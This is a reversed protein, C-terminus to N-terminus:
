RQKEIIPLISGVDFIRRDTLIIPEIKKSNLFDIIKNYDPLHDITGTFAMLNQSVKFSAGGIFGYNFGDLDIGGSSIELVDIGQQRCSESIARDSTIISKEDVVSVM